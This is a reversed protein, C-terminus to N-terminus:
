TVIHIKPDQLDTILAKLVDVARKGADLAVIRNKAQSNVTCYKLYYHVLEIKKEVAVKQDEESKRGRRESNSSQSPSSDVSDLHTKLNFIVAEIYKSATPLDSAKYYCCAENHLTTIILNRDILKGCSAGYELLREAEALYILAEEIFDQTILDKARLNFEEM